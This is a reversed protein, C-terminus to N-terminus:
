RAAKTYAALQAAHRTGCPIARISSAAEIPQRKWFWANPDHWYLDTDRVVLVDIYMSDCLADPDLLPRNPVPRFLTIMSSVSQVCAEVDGGFATGCIPDIASFQFRSYLQPLINDAIPNPQAVATPPLERSLREFFSRTEMVRTGVSGAPPLWSDWTREVKRDEVLVPYFRLMTFQYLTGIFGVAIAAISTYALLRTTARRTWARAEIQEDIFVAAWILLIFQMPLASRWGLDNSGITGSRFFASIGLSSLLLLWALRQASPSQSLRRRIAVILVIFFFGLEIAYRLVALPLRVLFSAPVSSIYGRGLLFNELVNFGPIGFIAFSGQSFGPTGLDHLYPRSLVAAGLGAALFMLLDSWRHRWATDVCWLGMFVVFVLTVYISLGASAAFAMAALAAAWVRSRRGDSQSATWLLLVGVLSVVLAALHHPVWLFSDFWSTVQDPSWWELDPYARGILLTPILDLGTVALLAIAIVCIRRLRNTFSLFHKLYLLAIAILALACWASSAILCARADLGFMQAPLACLVYWYYFYRMVPAQGTVFDFPNHPAVGTRVVAQVFATRTSQDFAVMSPYLRSGIQLDVLSFLASAVLLTVLAIAFWTSRRVGVKSPECRRRENWIFLAVFALAIAAFCVLATRTGAFREVLVASIPVIATSLVVAILVKELLSRRRFGLVDAVHGVLYGPPVLFVLFAFFAAASAALDQVMYNPPHSVDALTARM